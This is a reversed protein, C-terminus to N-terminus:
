LEVMKVYCCVDSSLQLPVCIIMYFSSARLRGLLALVLILLFDACRKCPEQQMNYNFFDFFQDVAYARHHQDIM